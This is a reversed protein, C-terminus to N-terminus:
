NIRASEQYEYDNNLDWIDYKRNEIINESILIGMLISHDQNNYKFSGYRGIVDVNNVSDLYDKIIDLHKNHDMDYIPYCNPVLVQQADKIKNGDILGTQTLELKALKLFESEDLTWLEEDKNAWYELCIITDEKGKKIEPVWNSFNTIRGTKLKDDHVYIWQDNFPVNGEVLLYAIRTQRFKLKESHKLVDAPTNPLIKLFYTLPMTSILHDFKENNIILGNDFEIKEVMESLKLLGGREIFKRSIKEYIQGTGELPYMFENVLTKHKTKFISFMGKLAEFLSFNKIRQKAFKSDLEKCSIGWLKESYTKFFISFLKVGFRKSVWGEFHSDDVSKFKTAVYSFFCKIGELVGLTFLANFPKLPYYFFKGKYFIRTLRSVNRYEKNAMELWFDNVRKDTSFFRHPGIDVIQEWMEISKCMGGVSKEAEFLTVQNGAEQLKLAAVLGAPGAGIVGIKKM